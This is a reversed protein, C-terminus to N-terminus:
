RRHVLLQEGRDLRDADNLRGNDDFLVAREHDIGAIASYLLRDPSVECVISTSTQSASSARSRIRDSASFRMRAEIFLTSMQRPM